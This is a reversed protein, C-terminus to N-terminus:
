IIFLFCLLCINFHLTLELLDASEFLYTHTHIYHTLIFYHLSRRRLSSRTCWPPLFRVLKTECQEYVVYAGGAESRAQEKVQEREERERWRAHM